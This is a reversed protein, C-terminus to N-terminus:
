AHTFMLLTYWIGYNQTISVYINLTELSIIHIQM